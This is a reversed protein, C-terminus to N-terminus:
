FEINQDAVAWCHLGIRNWLGRVVQPRDDMVGVINFREKAENFMREKVVVDKEFSGEKRMTLWCFPVGNVDLWDRTQDMCVADRGSFILIAYGRDYMGNVMDINEKIPTDQGVKMWDFPGRDKMRALTGDIDVIIAKPLEPNGVYKLEGKYELWQHYQKYIVNHGVGWARGADRKWAEELAVPFEKIEVEFGIDECLKILGNRTKPNLNTDAIIINRHNDWADQIM